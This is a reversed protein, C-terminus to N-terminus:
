KEKVLSANEPNLKLGIERCKNLVQILNKDHQEDKEGHIMVDDAIVSTMLNIDQFHCDMYYKFSINPKTLDLLCKQKFCYHGWPTNFTTLLQSAKMWPYPGFGM